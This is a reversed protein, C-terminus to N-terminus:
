RNRMRITVAQADGVGPSVDSMGSDGAARASVEVRVIRSAEDPAALEAGNVDFYRLLLGTTAARTSYAAFPGSAPQVVGYTAGDWESYGLYWDGTAGRYLRYRVRRVVHVYAGAGVSTPFAAAPGLRLRLGTLASRDTDVFRSAACLGAVSAIAAVERAIWRDDTSDDPVGLDYVLALDRPQPSTGFAALARARLASVPALDIASGDPAVACALAAGITTRIELASDSFTLVDGGAPSLARLEAPLIETADRLSARHEIVTAARAYFRQQRRLVTGIAAAVLGAITLVVTLEVTTVGRRTLLRRM